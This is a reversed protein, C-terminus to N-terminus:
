IIESESSDSNITNLFINHIQVHRKKIINKCSLNAGKSVQKEGRDKKLSRLDRTGLNFLRPVFTTVTGEFNM